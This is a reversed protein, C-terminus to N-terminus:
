VMVLGGAASMLVSRLLHITKVLFAIKHLFPPTFNQQAIRGVIRIQSQISLREQKSKWGSRRLRPQQLDSFVLQVPLLATPIQKERYTQSPQLNPEKQGSTSRNSM